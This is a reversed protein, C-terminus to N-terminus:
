SSKMSLKVHGMVEPLDHVEALYSTSVYQGVVEPVDKVEALYSNCAHIILLTKTYTRAEPLYGHRILVQICLHNITM